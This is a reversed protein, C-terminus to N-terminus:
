FQNTTHRQGLSVLLQMLPAKKAITKQKKPLKPLYLSGGGKLPLDRLWKPNLIEKCLVRQFSLSFFKWLGEPLASRVSHMGKYVVSIRAYIYLPSSIHSNATIVGFNPLFKM